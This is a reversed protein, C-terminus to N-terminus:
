FLCLLLSPYGAQPVNTGDHLGSLARHVPHLMKIPADALHRAWPRHADSNCPHTLSVPSSGNTTLDTSRQEFQSTHPTYLPGPTCESLATYTGCVGYDHTSITTRLA